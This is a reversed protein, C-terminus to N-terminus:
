SYLDKNSRKIKCVDVGSFFIEIKNFDWPLVALLGWVRWQLCFLGYSVGEGHGVRLNFFFFGVKRHCLATCFVWPYAWMTNCSGWDGAGILPLGRLLCGGGPPLLLMGLAPLQALTRQQQHFHYTINLLLRCTTINKFNLEVPIFQIFLKWSINLTHNDWFIFFYTM